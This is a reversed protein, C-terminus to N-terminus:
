DIEPNAEKLLRRLDGLTEKSPVHLSTVRSAFPFNLKFNKPNSPDKKADLQKFRAIATSFRRSRWLHGGIM